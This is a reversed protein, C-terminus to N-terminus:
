AAYRAAEFDSPTTMIVSSVKGRLNQLEDFQEKTVDRSALQEEARAARLTAAEVKDNSRKRLETQLRGDWMGFMVEGVIGIAIAADTIASDTLFSNYPPEIWAIVLEAIVAAVVLAGCGIGWRECSSSADELQSETANMRGKPLYWAPLVLKRKKKEAIAAQNNTNPSRKQIIAM